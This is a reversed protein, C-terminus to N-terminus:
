FKIDELCASESIDYNVCLRGFGDKELIERLDFKEFHMLTLLGSRNEEHALKIEIAIESGAPIKCPLNGSIADCSNSLPSYQIGITPNRVLYLGDDDPYPMPGSAYPSRRIERVVIKEVLLDSHRGDKEYVRDITMPAPLAFSISNVILEIDGSNAASFVVKNEHNAVLTLKIEGPRPSNAISWVDFAITVILSIVAIVLGAPGIWLNDKTFIYSVRFAYNLALRVIAIPEKIM